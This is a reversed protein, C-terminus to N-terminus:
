RVFRASSPWLDFWLSKRRQNIIVETLRQRGLV